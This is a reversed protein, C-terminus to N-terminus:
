DEKAGAARKLFGAAYQALEVNLPETNTRKGARRARAVEFTGRQLKAGTEYSETRFSIPIYDVKLDDHWELIRDDIRRAKAAICSHCRFSYEKRPDVRLLTYIYGTHDCYVCRKGMSELLDIQQRQRRQEADRLMPLAAKKISAMSPARAHEMLLQEIVRRFEAASLPSVIRWMVSSQNPSYAKDGYFEALENLGSQFESPTM